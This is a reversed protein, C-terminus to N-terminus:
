SQSGSQHDIFVLPIYQGFLKDSNFVLLEDSLIGFNTQLRQQTILTIGSQEEVGLYTEDNNASSTINNGSQDVILPVSMIAELSIQYFHGKSAFAPARLTTTLNSTGDVLIDFAANAPNATRNLMMDPSITFM